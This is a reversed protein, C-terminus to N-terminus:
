RNINNGTSVNQNVLEEDVQRMIENVREYNEGNEWGEDHLAEKSM